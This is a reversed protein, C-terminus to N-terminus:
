PVFGGAVHCLRMAKALSRTNLCLTWFDNFGTARGLDPIHNCLIDKHIHFQNQFRAVWRAITRRAPMIQKAIAYISNGYLTM